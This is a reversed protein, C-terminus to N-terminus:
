FIELDDLSLIKINKIDKTKKLNEPITDTIYLSDLNSSLNIFNDNKPFVGHTAFASVNKAGKSKLLKATEIITGGSQILDDIIIIDKDQPNGEKIIVEKKDLNRIKFCIITEYETFSPAFRKYAGEDPFAIVFNKNIQKKILDMCSHMITNVKFHNFYFTINLSHIDFIHITTKFRLGSPLNSFIDAFYKATVIDGNQSIRDMQGTPFYPIYVDLKDASYDLIGRIIAYNEFLNEPERFDGIYIIEKQYIDNEVDNIFYNPWSDSFNEFKVDAIKYSYKKSLSEALYKFNPHSIITKM